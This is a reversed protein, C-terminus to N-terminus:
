MLTRLAKLEAVSLSSTGKPESLTPGNRSAGNLSSNSNNMQALRQSLGSAGTSQSFARDRNAAFTSSVAPADSPRRSSAPTGSASGHYGRSDASSSPPPASRNSSRATNPSTTASDGTNARAMDLGAKAPVTNRDFDDSAPSLMDDKSTSTSTRGFISFRKKTTNQWTSLNSGLNDQTQPLSPRRQAGIPATTTPPPTNTARAADSMGLLREAKVTQDQSIGLLREAKTLPKGKSARQDDSGESDEASGNAVGAPVPDTRVSTMVSEQSIQIGGSSTPTTSGTGLASVSSQTQTMALPVQKNSPLRSITAGSRRSMWKSLSMVVRLARVQLSTHGCLSAAEYLLVALRHREEPALTLTEVQTFTKSPPSLERALTQHAAHTGWKALDPIDYLSALVLLTALMAPHRQLSTCVTQTHFFEMLAVVVPGPEPFLLQRPTIRVDARIRKTETSALAQAPFQLEVPMAEAVSTARKRYDRLAQKFWAWRRELLARSVGIRIGDSCIIVFDGQGGTMVPKGALTRLSRADSFSSDDQIVEALDEASAGPWGQKPVITAKEGYSIGSYGGQFGATLKELGLSASKTSLNFVPPQYIGWPELELIAIHDWNTQRHNYDAVLDRERNGLVLLRNKAPWLIARNWSGHALVSGGDMRSWTLTPLHLAWISFTQSTNALYTGSIILYSGLIFGNPFRLGPPLSAGAMKASLDEMSLTLNSKGSAMDIEATYDIKELERKVDAFSYNSYVYVPMLSIAKSTEEEAAPREEHHALVDQPAPKSISTPLPHLVFHGDAREPLTSVISPASTLSSGYSDQTMTTKTTSAISTSRLRSAFSDVDSQAISIGSTAASGSRSRGPSAPGSHTPAGTVTTPSGTWASSSGWCPKTITALGEGATQEKQDEDIVAWPTSVALSRYSGCQSTLPDSRIWRRSRLDFINIQEVYKNDIDQGGMIVLHDSSISSLHAYRPLPRSSSSPPSLSGNTKYDFLGFELDWTLTALDLSIVEDLVSLGDSKGSGGAGNSNSSSRSNAVPSQSTTSSPYGMGSCIILKGRWLDASHFYRAKPAVLRPSTGDPRPTPKYGAAVDAPNLVGPAVKRWTMTDIDLEYLDNTMKRTSVLRGGFLYIRAGGGVSTGPSSDVM